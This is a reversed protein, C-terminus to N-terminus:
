GSEQFPGSTTRGQSLDPSKWPVALGVVRAARQCDDQLGLGSVVSLM